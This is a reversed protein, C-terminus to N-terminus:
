TFVTGLLKSSSNSQKQLSASVTFMIGASQASVSILIRVTPSLVHIYVPADYIIHLM